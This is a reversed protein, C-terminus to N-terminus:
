HVEEVDDVPPPSACPMVQLMTPSTRWLLPSITPNHLVNANLPSLRDRWTSTSDRGAHAAWSLTSQNVGQM